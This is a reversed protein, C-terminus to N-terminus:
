LKVIKKQVRSGAQGHLQLLYVGAQLHAITIRLNRRGKINEAFYKKGDLGIIELLDWQDADFLPGVYIFESSPVPYCKIEPPAPVTLENSLAECGGKTIVVRYVGEKGPELVVQHEGAIGSWSSGLKLQWKIDATGDYNDIKLINDLVSIRPATLLEQLTMIVTDSNITQACTQNAPLLMDAFYRRESRINGPQVNWKLPSGTYVQADLVVWSGPATEEFLRVTTGQPTNNGPSVTVVLDSAACIKEPVLVTSTVSIRPDVKLAIENSSVQSTEVCAANSTIKVLIKDGDQFSRSTFSYTGTLVQQGNVEWIIGPNYGGNSVAATLTVPMGECIHQASSSVTVNVVDAKVTEVQLVATDSVNNDPTVQIAKIINAGAPNPYWWLLKRADDYNILNGNLYARITNGANLNGAYVKLTDATCQVAGTTLVPKPPRPLPAKVTTLFDTRLKDGYGFYIRYFYTAGPTLDSIDALGNFYDYCLVPELTGCVGKFLQIFVPQDGSLAYASVQHRTSTARFKFWIDNDAMGSCAPMSLTAGINSYRLQNNSEGVPIEIAGTCEDNPIASTNTNIRLNFTRTPTADGHHNYVRIYYTNGIVLNNVVAAEKEGLGSEDTCALSQLSNCAGGFIQMAYDNSTTTTLVVDHTTATAVFKYWTDNAEYGYNICPPMSQTAFELSSNYSLTGSSNNNVPLSIAGPCEDNGPPLAPASVETYINTRLNSGDGMYIRYYYVAGPTLGTLDALQTLGSYCLISTLNGCDGKFVQTVIPSNGENAGTYIRHRSQTATFKFWIDNDATGYCPPVSLTAGVNTYQSGGGRGTVPVEIAGACEDNPIATQSTNICLNFTKASSASGFRNYVRIYYTEGPQLNHVVAAEKENSATENVCAIPVLQGCNGRFVEFIFDEYSTPNLTINHDAATAVFKYWSDNAPYNSSICGPMSESVYGLSTSYSLQSSNNNNVPLLVAGTCEDNAPPLPVAAVRTYINTQLSSNNGLAVRYYYTAGRVLGTLDLVQDPADSCKISVLHGCDGSFAETIVPDFGYNPMSFIQHRTSTAVFKFWIDRQAAGKCVPMSVTAGVNTYMQGQDAVPVNIAGACEDNPITSTNSNICLKFKGNPTADGYLNYVRIYYTESPTLDKLVVAEVEDLATSNVCSIPELMGCSGKFVEFVYDTYSIPDLTINHISRTAIFKYWVDRAPYFSGVCSARSETAYGLIGNYSITSSNDNNVGVAIAGTCEDNSPAQAQIHLSLLLCFVGLYINKMM